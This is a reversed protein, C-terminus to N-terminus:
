WCIHRLCCRNLRKKAPSFEAFKVLDAEAFLQGFANVYDSSMRTSHLLRRLEGTTRDATNVGYQRHIYDRLCGTIAAYYAKHNGEQVLPLAGIRGLEDHAVQEPSRKDVVPRNRVRRYIHWAAFGLLFAGLATGAAMLPWVAPITLSAQPKIDRLMTDGEVLVSAVNVQVPAATVETLRGNPDSITVPLAPTLYRGPRVSRGRGNPTHDINWQQERGYDPGVSQAPEFDDWHDALEPVFVQYGAPHTVEIILVMPDGVTLSDDSTILRAEIVEGQALAPGATVLALLVLVLTLASLRLASRFGPPYGQVWEVLPRTVPNRERYEREASSAQIMM